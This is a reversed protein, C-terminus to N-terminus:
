SKAGIDITLTDSEPIRQREESKTLHAPKFGIVGPVKDAGIHVIKSPLVRDDLGGVKKFRLYGEKDAKVILLGVEDMHADLMVRLARRARGKGRTRMHKVAILNGLADVRYEDIHPKIKELILERVATENGSVGHANSLQELFM